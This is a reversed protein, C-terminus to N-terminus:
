RRRATQNGISDGPPIRIRTAEASNLAFMRRRVTSCFSRHRIAIREIILIASM